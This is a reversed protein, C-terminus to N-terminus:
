KRKQAQNGKNQLKRTWLAGAMALVFGPVTWWSPVEGVVPWAFFAGMAPVLFMIATAQALSGTRVLAFMLLMGIVTNVVVLHGVTWFLTSSATFVLGEFLWATPVAILAAFCYQVWTATIPHVHLTRNKEIVQGVSMGLVAVFGLLAGLLYGTQGNMNLGVIWGAGALGLGLACWTQWSPWSRVYLASALIILAPQSAAILAMISASAGMKMGVYMTGFHGIHLFLGTAALQKIVALPPISLRMFVVFPTVFLAAGVFRYALLNLPETFELALKAAAYGTSWVLLFLWPLCRAFM